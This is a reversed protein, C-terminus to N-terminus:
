CSQCCKKVCDGKCSWRGRVFVTAGLKSCHYCPYQPVERKAMESTKRSTKVRHCMPCLAQLNTPENTGGDRLEVIHDIEYGSEDFPKGNLPCSYDLVSSACTYRQRGAIRKKTSESVKREM